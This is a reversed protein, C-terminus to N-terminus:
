GATQMVIEFPIASCIDESRRQYDPLTSINHFIRLFCVKSDTQHLIQSILVPHTGVLRIDMELAEDAVAEEEV